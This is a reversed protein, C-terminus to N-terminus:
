RRFYSDYMDSLMNVSEDIQCRLCPAYVGTCDGCHEEDQKNWVHEVFHDFQQVLIERTYEIINDETSLFGILHEMFLHQFIWISKIWNALQEPDEQLNFPTPLELRM